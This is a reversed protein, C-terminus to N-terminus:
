LLETLSDVLLDPGAECINEGHNYGYSVCVAPIDAARAANLDHVSDGIMITDTTAVGLERCAHLLPEPDPKKVPLTDGSLMISFFDSIGLERCLPGTFQGPKNTILGIAIGQQHWHELLNRTGKYLASRNAFHGQYYDLFSLYAKHYTTDPVTETSSLSLAHALSRKVLMPAGNGVWLRVKAEGAAPLGMDVLSHDIADALDPVSDVLTGDLDFLALQFQREKIRTLLPHNVQVSM